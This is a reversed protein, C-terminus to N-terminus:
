IGKINQHPTTNVNNFIINKTKQKFSKKMEENKDNEIGVSSPYSHCVTLLYLIVIIVKVAFYRTVRM